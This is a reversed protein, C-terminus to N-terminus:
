RAVRSLVQILFLGSWIAAQNFAPYGVMGTEPSILTADGQRVSAPAVIAMNNREVYVDIGADRAIQLMQTWATGAYYPNALKAVVGANEFTLGHIVCPEVDYGRCGGLRSHQNATCAQCFLISGAM